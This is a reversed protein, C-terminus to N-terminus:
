EFESIFVYRKVSVVFDKLIGLAYTAMDTSTYVFCQIDDTTYQITLIGTHSVRYPLYM